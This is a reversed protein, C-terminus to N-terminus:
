WFEMNKNIRNWILQYEKIIFEKLLRWNRHKVDATGGMVAGKKPTEIMVEFSVLRILHELLM